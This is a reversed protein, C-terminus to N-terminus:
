ARKRSQHRYIYYVVALGIAVLVGYTVPRVAAEIASLNTALSYGIWIFVATWISTGILASILFRYTPMQAIGAVYGIYGRLFPLCFGVAVVPQGWRQFFRHALDLERPNLLVYRGYKHLIPLGGRRGINYSVFQGLLQAALALVAVLALNFVGQRALIGALPLIMESPLPVGMANLFLGLAMGGYGLQNVIHIALTIVPQM